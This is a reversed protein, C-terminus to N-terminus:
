CSHFKLVIADEPPATYYGSRRSLEQFGLSKYLALAARNSERLELFVTGCLVSWLLERAIGRRRYEPAVALNLVECENGTLTRTVVFGVVRSDLEAVAVNYGTPDWPAAEPSSRQIASIAALDDPTAPRIVSPSSSKPHTTAAALM